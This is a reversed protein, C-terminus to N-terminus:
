GAATPDVVRGMFLIVGTEIDRVAYLFPRNAAVTCTDSAGGTTDVGVVTVAAAETGKEDVSINAQHIVKSIHLPAETSIGSFDARSEDFARPMGLDRLIPVLEARTEVDFRPLSVTPMAVEARVTRVVADFAAPDLRAEFADLDDPVIVLMSLKTGIYGLEFAGWDPGVACGVNDFAHMTPVKVISGDPRRFDETTTRDVIFPRQWPAKLYIANVLALRTLPTVDGPRLVEPIRERTREKAWSNILIRAAEPDTAFDVLQMGAGFRAALADLFTPQFGFGRQAFYANAIDLTVEHATGDDDEFTGSRQALAQDLANLWNAHEDSAVAYLVGDMEIATEGVAGARAMGLAIAISAPSFVVNGGGEALKRHVDFAFANIAAGAAEADAESAPSRAVDAKALEIEGVSPPQSPPASPADSSPPATPAPSGTSQDAAAPPTATCAISSVVLVVGGIWAVSRRRRDAERTM